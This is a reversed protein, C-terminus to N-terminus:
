GNAGNAGRAEGELFLDCWIKLTLVRRVVVGKRVVITKGGTRERLYAQFYKMAKYARPYKKIWREQQRVILM